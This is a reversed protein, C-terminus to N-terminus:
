ANRRWLFAGAGILAAAAALPTRYLDMWSQISYPKAQKSFIGHAAYDAAVPEFLNDPRDPSVPESTQQSEYAHTGLYWQSEVQQAAQEVEQPNSVDVPLALAEGGRDEIERKAAELRDKGRAILGVKAGHRGFERAVARGVGASAGTVVVVENSRKAL